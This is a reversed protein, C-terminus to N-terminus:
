KKKLKRIKLQLNISKILLIFIMLPILFVLFFINALGYNGTSQLASIIGFYIPDIKDFYPKVLKVHNDKCYATEHHCSWSCKSRDKLSTNIAIVGHFNARPQKPELRVFENIVILCVIPLLFLSLYLIRKKM